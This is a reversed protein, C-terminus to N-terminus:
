WEEENQTDEEAFREPFYLAEIRLEANLKEYVMLQSLFVIFWLGIFPVLILTWPAFLLYILLYVMELVAVGLMKWLYKSTFLIINRMRDLLPQNFLVLQPWFLNTVTLLLFASFLYLAVTGWGPFVQSWWFLFGMFVYMSIILGWVAGPFLSCKWNQKWSKKYNRWWNGPDDRLGRQISDYLGTLFPGFIAGGVISGPILVLISSSIVSFAIAAALPLAGVCTILNVKIWNMAHFSMLQRYRNFGTMRISENYSQDDAFFMGM